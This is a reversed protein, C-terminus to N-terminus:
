HMRIKILMLYEIHSISLLTNKDKKKDFICSDEMVQSLSTYHTIQIDQPAAM